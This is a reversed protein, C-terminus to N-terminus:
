EGVQSDSPGQGEPGPEEAEGARLAALRASAAAEWGRRSPTVLTLGRLADPLYSQHGPVVGGEFDHPYKYGVGYKVDRM